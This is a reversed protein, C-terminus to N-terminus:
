KRVNEEMMKEVLSRMAAAAARVDKKALIASIVAVGDIGTGQLSLINKENIGGIGVVPLEVARCIKQLYDPPLNVADTKTSSGFVAGVGIYDAGQSVARLAEEENHASTGIIKGKGFRKRAIQLPEDDQGLHVGDADVALALEVSDNIIFPIRYKKCVKQVQAAQKLKEEYSAKKERYQVMTVGGLVAEEVVDALSKEERWSNDTVLYLRFQEKQLMHIKIRGGEMSNPCLANGIAYSDGQRYVSLPNCIIKWRSGVVTNVSLNLPDPMHRRLM